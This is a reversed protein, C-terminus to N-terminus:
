LYFYVWMGLYFVGVEETTFVGFSSLVFSSGALCCALFCAWNMREFRTAVVKVLLDPAATQMASSASSAKAAQPLVTFTYLVRVPM